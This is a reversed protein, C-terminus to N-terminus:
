FGCARWPISGNWRDSGPINVDDAPEYRVHSIYARMPRGFRADWFGTFSTQLGRDFSTWLSLALYLPRNPWQESQPTLTFRRLVKGEDDAVQYTIADKQYDLSYTYYRGDNFDFGLFNEGRDVGPLVHRDFLNRDSTKVEKLALLSGGATDGQYRPLILSGHHYYANFWTADDGLAQGERWLTKVLEIDIEDHYSFYAPNDRQSSEVGMLYFAVVSGAGVDTRMRASYHGYSLATVTQLGTSRADQMTLVLEQSPALWSALASRRLCSNQGFQDEFIPAAELNKSFSGLLILSMAARLIWIGRTQQMM